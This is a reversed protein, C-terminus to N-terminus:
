SVDGNKRKKDKHMCACPPPTDIGGLFVRRAYRSARKLSNAKAKCKVAGVHM